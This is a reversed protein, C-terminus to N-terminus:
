SPIKKRNEPHVFKRQAIEDSLRQQTVNQARWYREEHRQRLKELSKVARMAEVLETRKEAISDDFRDLTVRKAQIRKTLSQDHEARLRLELATFIQGEAMVADGDLLEKELTDIEIVMERRTDYLARLEWHKQNKMHERLRLVSALRFKFTAM